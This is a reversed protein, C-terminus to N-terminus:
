KRIEIIGNTTSSDKLICITNKAIKMPSILTNKDENPFNNTRMPTNTRQPIITHIHLDKREEALAQTFNVVGAKTASYVGFNKRGRSYSSSSINIIHGGKKIKAEKCALIVGLLNVELLKQIEKTSLEDLPKVLLTGACNILGDIEKFEEFIKKFIRKISSADTLDLPFNKSSLSIPIVHAKEKKLLECIISGIGGTAGIIAFRKNELKNKGHIKTNSVRFLQEALFLDLQSTIKINNESGNVIHVKQNNKIVLSCDDSSQINNNKANIHADLIVNYTFSQPTQGRQYEERNPIDLIKKRDKTHIITDFTPICTDVAKYNIACKINNLIIEKSVFPRVADHIVVIDKYSCNILGLYSSEQRTKGGKIVKIFSPIDKKIKEIWHEESVLIIEDFCELQLFIDLTHKYIERGSINHFQKPIQNGFRLGKGGMLIIASIYRNNYM